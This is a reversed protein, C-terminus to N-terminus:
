EIKYITKDSSFYFIHKTKTQLINYTLFILQLLSSHWIKKTDSPIFLLVGYWFATSLFIFYM